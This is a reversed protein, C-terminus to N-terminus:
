EWANKTGHSEKIQCRAGVMGGGSEKPLGRGQGLEWRGTEHGSCEVFWPTAVGAVGKRFFLAM